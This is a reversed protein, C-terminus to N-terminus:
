LRDVRNPLGRMQRVSVGTFAQEVALSITLGSFTAALFYVVLTYDQVGLIVPFCIGGVAAILGRWKGLSFLLGEIATLIGAISLASLLLVTM